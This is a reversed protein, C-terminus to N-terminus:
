STPRTKWDYPQLFGDNRVVFVRLIHGNVIHRTKCTPSPCPIVITDHPRQPETVVNLRIGCECVFTSVMPM